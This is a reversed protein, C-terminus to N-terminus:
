LLRLISVVKRTEAIDREVQDYARIAHLRHRSDTASDIARELLQKQELLKNTMAGYRELASGFAKVDTDEKAAAKLAAAELGAEGAERLLAAATEAPPSLVAAGGPYNVQEEGFATGAQGLACLAITFAIIHKRM